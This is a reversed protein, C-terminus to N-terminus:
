ALLRKMTQRYRNFITEEHAHHGEGIVWRGGVMVDRVPRRSPGFIVADLLNAPSQEALVPDSADLIVLDARRGPAIAGVPQGLAQAGGAVAARFLTLGSSEGDKALLNRRERTLRQALDLLRLEAFPDVGVHSDGGIALRGRAALYEMAPFVGDGLDAETSPCVGAVAQSAALRRTEEANMHTAHVVCWRADVAAHELLWEVPRAGSWAICDEVERRQEAAHIHIPGDIAREDVLSVLWRLEEPTVARLSHPAIGLVPGGRGALHDLLSSFDERDSVFRRQAPTPPSGTFNSHAYFVPLLTLGIGAAAGAAVLRTAMEAPNAYPRGIPDRHLYQFEAVCTYGAKLMEVYLQAAIAEQDDPEVRQLFRYMETRWTWFSDTAPGGRETLGAMARQFAHSHVNPVGPIVPGQAREADVSAALAVDLADIMGDPGIELVVDRAWGTPLLVDHAFLKMPKDRACPSGLAL